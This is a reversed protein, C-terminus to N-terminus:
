YTVTVTVTDIYDDPSSNASAVTAFVPVVVDLGTGTGAVTNTGITNGWVAGALGTVKRLQYAVTEIPTVVVSSMVGAGAANGNGPLLGINYGTKKSCKVTINSTGQLNVASAAVSGFDIDSGAGATVSCSKLVKIKVKFTDTATDAFANATFASAAILALAAFVNKKM